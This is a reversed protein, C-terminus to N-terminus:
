ERAELNTKADAELTGIFADVASKETLAAQHQAWINDMAALKQANTTIVAYAVSYTKPNTPDADDTRTATVSVAQAAVDLVNIQVDWSIAM